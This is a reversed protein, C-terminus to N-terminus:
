DDFGRGAQFEIAFAAGATTNCLLLKKFGLRVATEVAWEDVALVTPVRDIQPEEWAALTNVYTVSQFSTLKLDFNLRFLLFAKHL